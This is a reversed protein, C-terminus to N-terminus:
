SDNELVDMIVVRIDKGARESGLNVRGQGDATKLRIEEFDVSPKKRRIDIDFYNEIHDIWDYVIPLQLTTDCFLYEDIEINNELCYKILYTSDKGGSFMLVKESM